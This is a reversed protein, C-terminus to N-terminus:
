GVPQRDSEWEKLVRYLYPKSVKLRHRRWLLKVLTDTGIGENRLALLEGKLAELKQRKRAKRGKRGEKKLARAFAKIREDELQARRSDGDYELQKLLEEYRLIERLFGSYLILAARQFPLLESLNYTESFFKEMEPTLSAPLSKLSELFRRLVIGREHPLYKRFAALLEREKRLARELERM